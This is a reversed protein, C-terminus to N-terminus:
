GKQGQSISHGLSKLMNVTISERGDLETIVSARKTKLARGAAAIAVRSLSMEAKEELAEKVQSVIRSTEVIDEIQGDLMARRKHPVSVAESVTFVGDEMHGIVGVVNRTGIDLAFIDNEGQPSRQAKRIVSPTTANSKPM